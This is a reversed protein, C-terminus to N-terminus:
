RLEKCLVAHAPWHATQCAACCYLAVECAACKKPRKNSKDDPSSQCAPNDCGRAGKQAAKAEKDHVAFIEQTPLM